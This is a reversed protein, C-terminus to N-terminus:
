KKIIAHANEIRLVTEKKGLIAAIEFPSPSKEKGSLAVRLPWLLEGRDGMDTARKLLMTEINKETFDKEQISEILQKSFELSNLIKNKTMKKWQLLAGDYKPMANFMYFTQSLDAFTTMRMQELKLIELVKEKKLNSNNIKFGSIETNNSYEKVREFLTELPMKKIHERNIWDLKAIDFIAGAKQVNELRFEKLLEDLTFLEKDSESPHWGLLAVFNIIAEKLYGKDLFDYVASEGERKSLKERKQNLLLPLHAYQPLKWGFAQHLQIYKPMSSIFEEGRIVHTINMDHDDVLHALNYTPYGDTKLIVFDEQIKNEIKISGRIIDTFQTTGTKSMRFRISGNDVYAFKKSVLEEAYKKYTKLNESQRFPGEDFNLDFAKISKVINEESQDVKRSQDTDEIRLIFKGNNQKAFLYNYLTTRLGGIHFLGTPSPAARTIIETKKNM